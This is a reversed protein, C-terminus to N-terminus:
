NILSSIFDRNCRVFKPCGSDTEEGIKELIWIDGFENIKKVLDERAIKDQAKLKAFLFALVEERTAIFRVSGAGIQRFEKRIEEENTM